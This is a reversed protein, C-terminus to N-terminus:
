KQRAVHLPEDQFSPRRSIPTESRRAPIPPWIWWPPNWPQTEYALAEAGASVEPREVAPVNRGPPRRDSRDIRDQPRTSEGTLAAAQHYGPKFNDSKMRNAYEPMHITEHGAVEKEGTIIEFVRWFPFEGSNSAAIATLDMPPKFLKAELQGSGTGDAGHCAVCNEEFDQRGETLVEGRTGKEAAAPRALIVILATVLLLVWM